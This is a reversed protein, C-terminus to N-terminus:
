KGQILGGAPRQRVDASQKLTKSHGNRQQGDAILLRLGHEEGRKSAEDNHHNQISNDASPENVPCYLEPGKMKPLPYPLEFGTRTLCRRLRWRRRSAGLGVEGGVRVAAHGVVAAM